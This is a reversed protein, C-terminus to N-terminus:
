QDKVPPIMPGELDNCEALKRALRKAEQQKALVRIVRVKLAEIPDPEDLIAVKQELKAIKDALEAIRLEHNNQMYQLQGIAAWMSIRNM